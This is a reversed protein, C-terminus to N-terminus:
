FEKKLSQIDQFKKAILIDSEMKKLRKISKNMEQDNHDPALSVLETSAELRIGLPSSAEIQEQIKVIEAVM